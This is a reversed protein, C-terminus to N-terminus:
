VRRSKVPNEPNFRGSFAMNHYGGSTRYMSKPTPAVASLLDASLDDILQNEGRNVCCLSIIVQSSVILFVSLVKIRTYQKRYNVELFEYFRYFVFVCM